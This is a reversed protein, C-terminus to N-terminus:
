PPRRPEALVPTFKCGHQPRGCNGGGLPQIGRDGIGEVLDVTLEVRLVGIEDDREHGTSEARFLHAQAAQYLLSPVVRQEEAAARATDDTGSALNLLFSAYRDAGRNKRADLHRQAMDLAAIQWRLESFAGGPFSGQLHFRGLMGLEQEDRIGERERGLFDQWTEITRKGARELDTAERAAAALGAAIEQIQAVVGVPASGYEEREAAVHVDIRDHRLTAARDAVRHEDGRTM